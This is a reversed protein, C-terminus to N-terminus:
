LPADCVALMARPVGTANLETEQAGEDTFEPPLVVQVTENDLAAGEPPVATARLLLEAANVTGDETVTAAPDADPVKLAFAPVSVALWVTVTVAVKFLAECVVETLRTYVASVIVCSEQAGVVRPEPPEEVHVAVSEWAAPVPPATTVRELVEDAKVTGPDIVIDEPEVAPVKLAVAPLMVASADAVTLAVYLPVVLDAVTDRTVDVSTVERKHEGVESLLLVAVLQVTVRDFAAGVPPATTASVLVLGSSTTGCDIVIAAPVVLATTAALAPLMVASVVAM